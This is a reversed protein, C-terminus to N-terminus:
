SAKRVLLKFAQNENVGFARVASFFEDSEAATCGTLFSVLIRPDYFRFICEEGTKLRIRLLKRLHVAVAALDTNSMVFIGWPTSWLNERLWKLLSADVKVLYPAYKWYEQQPSGAFLSVARAEGLETAKPPVLPANTADLVAFLFGNAAFKELQEHSSQQIEVKSMSM